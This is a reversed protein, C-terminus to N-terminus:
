VAAERNCVAHSRSLVRCVGPCPQLVGDTLPLPLPLYVAAASICEMQHYVQRLGPPKNQCFLAYSAFTDLLAQLHASQVTEEECVALWCAQASSGVISVMCAVHDVPLSTKSGHSDGVHQDSGGVDQDAKQPLPSTTLCRAALHAAAPSAAAVELAVRCSICM